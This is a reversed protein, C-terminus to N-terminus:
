LYEELYQFVNDVMENVDDESDYDVYAISTEVGGMFHDEDNLEFCLLVESNHEGVGQDEYYINKDGQRYKEIYTQGNFEKSLATVSQDSNFSSTKYVEHEYCGM